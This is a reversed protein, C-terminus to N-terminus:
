SFKGTVSSKIPRFYTGGFSGAQLVEKPTMNPYILSSDEFVLNGQKNKTPQPVTYGERERIDQETGGGRKATEKSTGKQTTSSSTKGDKVQKKPESKKPTTTKSKTKPQTKSKVTTPTKATAKPTAQKAKKATQGKVEDDQSKRKVTTKDTSKGM